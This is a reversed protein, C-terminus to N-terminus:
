RSRPGAQDLIYDASRLTLEPRARRLAALAQVRDSLSVKAENLVQKAWVTAESVSDFEETIVQRQNRSDGFVKHKFNQLHQHM